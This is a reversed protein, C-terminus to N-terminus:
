GELFITYRALSEPEEHYPEEDLMLWSHGQLDPGDRKVGVVVRASLGQAASWHYLVLSRRLCPRSSRGIRTLWFTAGRYIKDMTKLQAMTPRGRNPELRAPKHSRIKELIGPMPRYRVLCDYYLTLGGIWALLSLDRPLDYGKYQWM